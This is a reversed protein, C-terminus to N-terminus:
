LLKEFPQVSCIDVNAEQLCVFHSFYVVVFAIKM